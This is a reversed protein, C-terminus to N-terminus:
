KVVQVNEGSKVARYENNYMAEVITPPLVFEGLTVCNLKVIFDYVHNRGRIDFFWMIRDDRIDLYEQRNLTYSRM